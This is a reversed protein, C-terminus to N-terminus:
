WGRYAEEILHGAEAIESSTVGMAEYKDIIQALEWNLLHENAHSYARVDNAVLENYMVKFQDILQDKFWNESGHWYFEGMIKRMAFYVPDTDPQKEIDIKYVAIDQLFDNLDVVFGDFDQDNLDAYQKTAENFLERFEKNVVTM